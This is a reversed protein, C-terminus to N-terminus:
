ASFCLGLRNFIPIPVPFPTFSTAPVGGGHKNTAHTRPGFYIMVAISAVPGKWGACVILPGLSWRITQILCAFNLRQCFAESEVSLFSYPFKLLVLPEVIECRFHRERAKRIM